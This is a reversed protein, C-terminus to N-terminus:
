PVISIQFGISRATPPQGLEAGQFASASLATEPDINPARASMLLNRGIVSARLSQATFVGLWHLPMDLTLRAERLKVFTADYVWAEQIPLLSHYYDQTTVHQVNQQGTAVDIGRILLGTDPRFATETSTGSYQGWLNTASFIQGGVHADILLNLEFGRFRVLNAFSGTWTPEARGLVRPNLSDPLPHGDELLLQGTSPDRLYASGVLTPLPEGTRAEVTLGWLSPGLPLETADASLVDVRSRNQGYRAVVSWEFGSRTLIPTANLEAEIGNNTLAGTRFSSSLADPSPPAGPLVLNSSSSHYYTADLALRGDSKAVGGGLDWAETIEPALANQQSTPPLTAPFGTSDLGFYVSRLAAATLENGARSWSAHLRAGELAGGLRLARGVDFTGSVQPYITSVGAVDAASIREDRIGARVASYAGVGLDAVVFVADTHSDSVLREPAPLAANSGAPELVDAGETTLQLGNSRRSAGGTLHLPFASAGAPGGQLVLELNSEHASIGQNQFGGTSFDGQGAFYPFGGMWSPAITFDRTEHYSDVGVRATASLAPSFAYTGSLGGLVRSRRNENSNQTSAFYPNDHATYIWNIQNEATDVVHSQLADLDVQRGMVAFEAMPNAPSFGAGPLASVRNNIFQGSTAVSFRDGLRRNARLAITERGGSMSPTLGSATRDSAALRLGGLANGGQASVNTTLTHGTEFFGSVNNPNPLWLRVDPRRPQTYSAQAVARGDLPPGWNEAIADNIGGGTGDFFEFQGNLGQGFGNQYRPLRLPSEFSVQQSAAVDFGNLGNGTKTTVVVVGNAARSGYEINAQGQDLVTVSAIDALNLDRIATGYDFGGAGFQESRSNFSSNDVPVGDIVFLPGAPAAISHPGRFRLLSSGSAVASTVQLGTVRGALASGLDPAGPLEALGSSDVVRRVGFFPQSLPVAAGANPVPGRKTSPAREPATQMEFDQTLTGGVLTVEVSRPPFRLYRATLTVRQGRVRSSPVIFSYRGDADSTASLGLSPIGVNAGQVPLSDATVRGSVTVANQAVARSAFTAALLVPFRWSLARGFKV